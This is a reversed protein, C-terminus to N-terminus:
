PAFEALPTLTVPGMLGSDVPQWHAPSFMGDPGRNEPRLPRINQNYLKKWSPDRRDLDAIRNAGLNAVQVELTNDSRLLDAPVFVRYPPAVVIGLDRGNVRVRATEGVLGLDLSWGAAEAGPRAFSLTYTATGSFAKVDDGNLRTWSGLQSVKRGAPLAPGGTIFKLTWDGTLTRPEGRTRWLPFASGDRSESYLRVLRSGGSEIQLYVEAAATDSERLHAQGSQGTAADYIAASAGNTALPIWGDIPIEGPNTIYYITSDDLRRRITQLGRDHLPERRIGAMHLLPEFQSGLLVAGRGLAARRVGREDAPAFRLRQKLQALTTRHGELDHLGSADFSLDGVIVATAGAEVLGLVKEFTSVPIFRCEPLIITRYESGGATALTAHATVAVNRLQRDSVYDVAYGRAVLENALRGFSTAHLWDGKSEVHETMRRRPGDGEATRQPRHSPQAFRDHMPFYLLVDNDPRGAQLFSQVRAAYAHVASAHEWIPNRPNLHVAVYFFWGPWPENQPSFATGHYVAHNVGAIWFRRLNDRIQAPTSLFNENLFTVAEAGILRRGAVHGASSAFKMHPISVGETEPIDSAAYLDLINAPSGHAQNRIIKGQRHAWDAWGRTFRDLLLDSLTERYDSLVRVHTESEDEAFLAPLHQRLDYGRRRHFEALFDDTWDSAHRADDVEYSDNFFARLPSLNRGAFAREFPSLYRTIAGPSFHDIMFGEGGPAAREVLKGNWAQFVAFLTWEGEPATWNLVGDSQVQRTLDLVQDDPGYAMLTQLPLRRAFKIQDIALQQLSPNASLPERIQSAEPLPVTQILSQGRSSAGAGAARTAGPDVAYAQGLVYHVWPTQQAVVAESLRQGGRVTFRRFVVHKAADVDDVAPGGFNWGTGNVMDFGLGLRHAERLAHDFVELWEPSLYDIYRSEYGKAGYVPTLEVGGIGAAAIAELDATVDAKTVASGPWWWRTWPKNEAQIKPWEFTARLPLTITALALATLLLRVPAPM